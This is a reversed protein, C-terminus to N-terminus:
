LWESKLTHPSQMLLPFICFGNFRGLIENNQHTTGIKSPKQTYFGIISVSAAMEMKKPGIGTKQEMYM